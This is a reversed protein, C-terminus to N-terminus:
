SVPMRQAAQRLHGASPPTSTDAQAVRRRGLGVRKGAARLTQGLLRVLPLAAVALRGAGSV